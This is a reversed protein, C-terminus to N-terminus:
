SFYGSKYAKFYEQYDKQVQAAYAMTYDLLPQQWHTDQGFVILDDPAAAGQRGASRLQASATMLAMDEVVCAIDKYRDRVLLFDIKDATPQMEKVVFPHSEFITTGLLAPCVNQMRKQVAVVREAESIWHPQPIVLWPQLSSPLAEKMDVLAHRKPDATHRVLFVYRRCGLSGTGAVRFCADLVRIPGKVMPHGELWRAIHAMLEKRLNKEIPYFRVKDIRLRLKGEKREETRQRILEKQRRASIKEMFYRVIGDATEIELYRAKGKDLTEAYKRLFLQALPFADKDKIGLSDCGTFISTVMRGVEWAVPALMAEDFDNLDFYVLRNDGKYTGFNELHLDGCVWATPSAPLPEGHHLDEYFLHCTGRFFRFPNEAMLEYKLATYDHLRSANFQKIREPITAVAIRKLFTSFFIGKDQM